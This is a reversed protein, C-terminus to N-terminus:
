ALAVARFREVRVMALVMTETLPVAEATGYSARVSMPKLGQPIFYISTDIMIHGARSTMLHLWKKRKMSAFDDRAFMDLMVVLIHVYPNRRLVSTDVYQDCILRVLLANGKLDFVRLVKLRAQVIGLQFLPQASAAPPCKSPLLDFLGGCVIPYEGKTPEFTFLKVENDDRWSFQQSPKIGDIGILQASTM